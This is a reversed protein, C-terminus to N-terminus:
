ADMDETWEFPEPASPEDEEDENGPVNVAYNHM